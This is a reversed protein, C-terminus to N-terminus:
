VPAVVLEPETEPRIRITFELVLRSSLVMLTEIKPNIEGLELRAINPQKMGLRDALARQSLGHEARYRVLEIAVARGLATREWEERFGPDSKLHEAFLEGDNKLDSPKM